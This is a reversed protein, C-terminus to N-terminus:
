CINACEDGFRLIFDGVERDGLGRVGGRDGIDFFLDVIELLIFVLIENVYKLENQVQLSIWSTLSV